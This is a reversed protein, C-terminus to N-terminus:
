EIYFVFCGGEKEVSKGTVILTVGPLDPWKCEESNEQLTFKYDASDTKKLYKITLIHQNKKDRFKM